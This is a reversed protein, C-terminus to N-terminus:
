RTRSDPSRRSLARAPTCAPAAADCLGGWRRRPAGGGEPVAKVSAAGEPFTGERAGRSTM